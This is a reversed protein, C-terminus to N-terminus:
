TSIFADMNLLANAVITLAIEEQETATELGLEERAHQLGQQYLTQLIQMQRENPPEILVRTFGLKLREELALAEPELMIQALSRAAEVFVTDNLTVLAQLPTNTSIRRAVCFERSPSDFAVMSPYPTTRRWFTYLGRRLRDEGQSEVWKDGSYVVNWVGDPQPPKVSPGYMKRSLLGSVALAQDRVQEASLRVRPGRALWINDADKELDGPRVVSSQRYTASMVMQKLLSKVSWHHEEQFSLALWDLLAPHTPEFGMSGFDELTMVIGRGFIQEWFRNVAVRATLPNEPRFLWRAFDLRNPDAKDLAPLSAPVGAQVPIDPVQWNGRHFVYSERRNHETRAKLIPTRTAKRRYWLLSDQYTQVLPSAMRGKELLQIEKLTLIGDPVKGTTNILVFYLDHRGATAPIRQRLQQWKEGGGGENGRIRGTEPLATYSLRPGDVSDLHVAIASEDGPSAYTYQLAEVQSLDLDAFMIMFTRGPASNVNATWNSAVYDPYLTSHSFDDCDGAILRPYLAAKIQDQLHTSKPEPPEPQQERIFSIIEKIKQEDEEKFQEYFPFEAKLDNDQNNNFFAYSQYYEKQLIPDYPHTHCQVCEMTLGQWVTWTTNTRDLVAAVRFEEDDTGGETNTMSNRQFATAIIQDETADPLLDGAIQEITFQDFPKDQNFARILWDRYAWISRSADREYGQSDAYRALDMWMAAWREGFHPSALLQDVIKEYAEPDDTKLFVEVKEPEPPLGTLDLSLRRLLRAKRAEPSPELGQTEMRALVFHDIENRPWDSRSVEPLPPRKPAVFSWHTEWEAGQEVWQRLLAIENETLPEADLPMREEPDPHTLRAIMESKEPHGPVIAPLGSETPALAEQRFLLSFDGARKVGGHCGICNENIIPRIQTNFDIPEKGGCAAWFFSLGIFSVALIRGM